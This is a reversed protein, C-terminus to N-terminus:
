YVYFIKEVFNPSNKSIGKNYYTTFMPLNEVMYLDLNQNANVDITDVFRFHNVTQVTIEYTGTPVNVTFNGTLSDTFTSFTQSTFLNLFYVGSYANTLSPVSQIKGSVNNQALLASVPLFLLM